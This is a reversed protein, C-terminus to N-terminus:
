HQYCTVLMTAQAMVMSSTFWAKLQQQMQQQERLLVDKTASDFIEAQLV